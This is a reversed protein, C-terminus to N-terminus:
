EEPWFLAIELAAAEPSASGHVSNRRLSQAYIRRITGPEAKTFDTHGMLKRWREVADAGGLEMVVAPGSTMYRCLAPYFEEGAHERYLQKVRWDSLRAFRLLRIVPLGNDEIMAIIPGVLGREVADPKIIALTSM